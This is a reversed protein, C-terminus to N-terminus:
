KVNIVSTKLLRDYLTKNGKTFLLSIFPIYFLYKGLPKVVNRFIVKIGIRDDNDDVVKIGMINKGLTVGNTYIEVTYLIITEVM